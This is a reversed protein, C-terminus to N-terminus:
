PICGPQAYRSVNPLCKQPPKPAPAPAGGPREVCGPQWFKPKEPDCYTVPGPPPAPAPPGSVPMCGPQWIRPLEPDCPKASVTAASSWAVM